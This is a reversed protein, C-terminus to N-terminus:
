ESFLGLYWLHAASFGYTLFQNLFKPKVIFNLPQLNKAHQTDDSRFRLDDFQWGTWVLSSGSWKSCYICMGKAKMSYILKGRDVSQDCWLISVCLLKPHVNRLLGWHGSSSRSLVMSEKGTRQYQQKKAQNKNKDPQLHPTPHFSTYHSKM